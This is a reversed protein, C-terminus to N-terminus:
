QGAFISFINYLLNQIVVLLEEGYELLKLFHYHAFIFGAYVLQTIHDVVEQILTVFKPYRCTNALSAKTVSTKEVTDEFKPLKTKSKDMPYLKSSSRSHDTEGCPRRVQKQENNLVKNKEKEKKLAESKAVKDQYEKSVKTPDSTCSTSPTPAPLVTQVSTDNNVATM